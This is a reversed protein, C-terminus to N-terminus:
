LVIVRYSSSEDLVGMSQFRNMMLNLNHVADMMFTIRRCSVIFVVSINRACSYLCAIEIIPLVTQALLMWIEVASHFIIM